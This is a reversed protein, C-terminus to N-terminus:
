SIGQSIKLEPETYGHSLITYFHDIFSSGWVEIQKVQLVNQMIM